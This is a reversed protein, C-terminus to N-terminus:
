KIITSFGSSKRRVKNVRGLLKYPTRRNSIDVLDRESVEVIIPKKVLAFGRAVLREITQDLYARRTYVDTTPEFTTGPPNLWRWQKKPGNKLLQRRYAISTSKVSPTVNSQACPTILLQFVTTDPTGVPVFECYVAYGVLMTELKKEEDRTM